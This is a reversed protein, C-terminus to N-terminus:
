SAALVTRPSRTGSGTSCPPCICLLPGGMCGLSSLHPCRLGGAAAFRSAPGFWGMSFPASVPGALLLTCMVFSTRPRFALMLLRGRRLM